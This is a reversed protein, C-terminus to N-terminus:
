EGGKTAKLVWSGGQKAYRVWTEPNEAKLRKSDLRWSTIYSLRLPQRGDTVLDVSTMGEPLEAALEAKIGDTIAKFKEAAADAAAKAEAYQAHLQELRTGQGASVAYTEQDGSM